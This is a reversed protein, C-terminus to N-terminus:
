VISVNTLLQKCPLYDKGISLSSGYTAGKECVPWGPFNRCAWCEECRLDIIPVVRSGEEITESPDLAM